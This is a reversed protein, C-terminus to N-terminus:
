SKMEILKPRLQEIIRIIAATRASDALSQTVIKFFEFDAQPLKTAEHIIVPLEYDLRKTQM